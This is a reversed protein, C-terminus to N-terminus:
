ECGQSSISDKLLIFGPDNKLFTPIADTITHFLAVEKNAKKVELYQQYSPTFNYAISSTYFMAAIYHHGPVNFLVYSPSLHLNQFVAKNHSLTKYCVDNKEYPLYGKKLLNFDMRFFLLVLLFVLVIKQKQAYIFKFKQLQIILFDIFFAMFLYMPLITVLTFAPMKTKVLSFFIFVFLTSLVLSIALIRNKTKLCFIVMAPIILYIFLSGYLEGILSIHYTLPGDHGELPTLIHALNFQYESKAEIPYRKFIFLQWPLAIATTLLFATIIDGYKKFHLKNRPLAFVIWCLYVLMGVLWKCLIAFGSFLGIFIIWWKNNTHLYEIWAWISLSIYAIFAADNQDLENWGGVLGMLYPSTAVLLGALFGVQENIFLKGSRYAGYIVATSLIVNPFRLAFENVGFVKYSLAIQWLFLPQKHLWVHFNDWNNYPMKLVCSDYLTPMFPHNLLNKAVLAHFREDWGNLFPVVISGFLFLIFGGLILFLLAKKDKSLSHFFVSLILLFLGAYFLTLKLIYVNEIM